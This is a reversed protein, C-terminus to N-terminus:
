SSRERFWSAMALGISAAPLVHRVAKLGIAASPMGPAASTEPAQALTEGGANRISLLGRAGDDGLGSLLIGIAKEGTVNAVSEFMRDISPVHPSGGADEELRVLLDGEGVKELRIHVGGPAIRLTGPLLIEGQFALRSEIRFEQQLREALHPLIAPAMHQVVLVPPLPGGALKGLLDSLAAPGGTSGGVALLAPFDRSRMGSLPVSTERCVPVTANMGSLERVKRLVSARFLPNTEMDGPKELIDHAGKLLAEVSTRSGLHTQGSVVLIRAPFDKRIREALLLGGMGPMEIDLTVVAPSLEGLLSLAEEASEAEGVVAIDPSRSLILRLAKRFTRSDDVVLVRTM